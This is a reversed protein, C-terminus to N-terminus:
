KLDKVTLYRTNDVNSQLTQYLDKVTISFSSCSPYHPDKGSDKCIIEPVSSCKGSIIWPELLGDLYSIDDTPFYGYQGKFGIMSNYVQMTIWRLPWQPDEFSDNQLISIRSIVIHSNPLEDDFVIYGWREPLHMNIVGMPSWVWNHEPLGSVKQYQGQHDVTVNYEVRSFNIRWYDGRKPPNNVSNNIIIMSLPLAVEVSWFSDKDGSNNITGNIFVGSKYGTYEFSNDANGGNLYPKNLCLDWETNLANMEYEKYYHTTADPNIFIEFDNDYFIVSDHETQNAWIDTEEIHASVYLFQDDYLMKVRTDFYPKVQSSIDVFSETWPVQSWVDDDIKGDIKITQSPNLKKM